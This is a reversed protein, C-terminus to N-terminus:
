FPSARRAPLQVPGSGASSSWGCRRYVLMYANSSSLRDPPASASAAAEEAAPPAPVDQAPEAAVAVETVQVHYLSHQLATQTEPKKWMCSLIPFSKEQPVLDSPTVHVVGTLFQLLCQTLASHM